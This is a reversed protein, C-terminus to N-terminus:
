GYWYMPLEKRRNIEQSVREGYIERSEESDMLISELELVLAKCQKVNKKSIHKRTQRVMMTWLAL